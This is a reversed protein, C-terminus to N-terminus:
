GAAEDVKVIVMTMDDHPEATGVFAMVERLVRERIGTPDLRQQSAVAQALADDGFLDGEPNMAESVGDTYLVIVDGPLLPQTYEKLMQSFREAAGPLRLGLVMGDPVILRSRGGSVALIPTHGARACTVTRADLDFVAYTATIFSRNDLHEALLRNVTVLLDRPSRVTHSLALMLGKLEAMYLAASTGKGSVDAVLVGVLRPGLEFFDYYDGGVERAPECLDAFRLGPIDPPEVPLLSKQIDRAIRLEDDLRQKERQVHLLHEISGSMRNFSDALDGLQDRSEIRVRHGFDGQQVRETGVFLEHVASTISRALLGGMVLASGQIILFLVGLGVLLVLFGSSLAAALQESQASAMLRYVDGIPAALGVSVRGVRGTTWDTCDMFAVTQRFLTGGAHQELERGVPAEGSFAVAIAIVRTSTRDHLSAVVDTDVPLDAVVLWRGDATLVGSRILLHVDETSADSSYPLVGTFGRALQVWGPVGAPAAQHRWPGAVAVPDTDAIGPDNPGRVPLVALSLEQYRPSLSDYRRTLLAAASGPNRDLERATTLAVQHIQDELDGFGERFLFAALNNYLVVSGALAFAVVLVVPVFGLFVYSLILKRRVRWLLARRSRAAVLWGLWGVSVLFGLAVVRRFVAVLEPLTVFWQLVVLPVLLAGSLVFLRGPFTRLLRTGPVAAEDSVPKQL